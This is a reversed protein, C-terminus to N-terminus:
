RHGGWASLRGLESNFFGPPSQWLQELSSGVTFLEHDLAVFFRHRGQYGKPALCGSIGQLPLSLDLAQHAKLATPAAVPIGVLAM